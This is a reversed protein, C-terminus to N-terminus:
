QPSSRVHWSRHSPTQPAPLRPPCGSGACAAVTLIPSSRRPAERPRQMNAFPQRYFIFRGCMKVRGHHPNPRQGSRPAAKQAAVVRGMPIAQWGSGGRRAAISSIVGRRCARPSRSRPPPARASAVPRGHEKGARGEPETDVCTTAVLPQATAQTHRVWEISSTPGPQQPGRVKPWASLSRPPAHMYYKDSRRHSGGGSYFAVLLTPGTCIAAFTAPEPRSRLPRHSRRGCTARWGAGRRRPSAPRARHSGRRLAALVAAPPHLRRHLRRYVGAAANSPHRTSRPESHGDTVGHCYCVRICHEKSMTNYAPTVRRGFHLYM